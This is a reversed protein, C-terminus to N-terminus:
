KRRKPEKTKIINDKNQKAKQTSTQKETHTKQKLCFIYIRICMHSHQCTLSSFNGSPWNEFFLCSKRQGLFDFTCQCLLLYEM